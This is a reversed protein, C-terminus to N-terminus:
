SPRWVTISCRNGEEKDGEPSQRDCQQLLIQRGADHQPVAAGIQEAYVQGQPGQIDKGGLDDEYKKRQQQDTMIIRFAMGDRFPDFPAAKQSIQVPQASM